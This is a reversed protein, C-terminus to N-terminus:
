SVLLAYSCRGSLPAHEILLRLSECEPVAQQLLANYAPYYQTRFWRTLKVLLKLLVFIKVTHDGDNM